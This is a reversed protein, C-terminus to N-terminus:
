KKRAPPAPSAAPQLLLPQLLAAVWDMFARVRLPLHRRHPYLLSVPMPEAEYQPLVHVLAGTALHPGDGILPVQILGYGALCAASYAAANNVTISNDMPLERYQAGDFYEWGEAQNGFNLSYRVLRHGALDALTRPTGHRALYAPSACTIVRALGLPRVVLSPEEVRGVRVVCDFGERILDVRRDTASIELQLAPHPATFEQLHPIVHYQAIGTPMDVRLRGALRQPTQRFLAGLDDADALLDRAREYCARGDHTLEVRRTTRQLLRADLSNELQQVAVSAVGKQLGLAEAARTFSGLEAVRVFIRLRDLQDM